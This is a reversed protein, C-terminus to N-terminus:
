EEQRDKGRPQFQPSAPFNFDDMHQTRQPIPIPRDSVSSMPQANTILGSGNMYKHQRPCPFKTM